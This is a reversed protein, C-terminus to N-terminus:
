IAEDKEKRAKAEKKEWAQEVKLPRGANISRRSRTQAKQQETLRIQMM